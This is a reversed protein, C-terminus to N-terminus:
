YRLRYKLGVSENRMRGNDVGLELAAVLPSDKYGLELSALSQATGGSHLAQQLRRIPRLDIRLRLDDVPVTAHLGNLFLVTGGVVGAM